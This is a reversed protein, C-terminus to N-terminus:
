RVCSYSANGKSLVIQWLQLKRARFGGASAMIYFKWMRYFRDGYAARLTPWARDFNEWWALATRDYDPGFNHWDEMVWLGDIATGLQAVSPIMGNPFIYKDIWADTVTYSTNGGITHLLFLGDKKLLQHALEVFKRYNKYGVHECLGISVVRDFNQREHVAERYDKQEFRVPLSACWERAFQVQDQSINYGVVECAWHKAVYRALGGFGSGLELVRMGPELHLKRCILDLKNEQAEDLTAADKWYACTYQMNKDLMARYLDNGLDYHRRAVADAKSTRQRNLIRGAFALSVEGFSRTRKWLDNRHVRAFFEDLADVDWWGDMYSEGLGLSGHLLARRFFRQDHVRIDWPRAGDISIDASALIAAIADAAWHGRGTRGHMGPATAGGRRVDPFAPSLSGDPM